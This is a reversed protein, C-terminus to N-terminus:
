VRTKMKELAGASIALIGTIFSGISTFGITTSEPFDIWFFISFLVMGIGTLLYILWTWKFEKGKKSLISYNILLTASVSLIMTLYFGYTLEGGWSDSDSYYGIIGGWIYVDDNSAFPTIISVIAIVGAILAIMWSNKKFDEINVLNKL